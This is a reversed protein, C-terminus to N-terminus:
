DDQVTGGNKTFTGDVGKKGTKATNGSITGGDMTFTGGLSSVYVGGGYGNNGDATNESITGAKMTFTGYNDVYVGGGYNSKNKSITGGNMTFTGKDNIFVGGGSSYGGHATNGSITGGNMTLTANGNVYVGGGLGYDSNNSATNGSVTGGNMTFTGNENIYVGGGYGTSSNGKIEGSHLEVTSNSDIYVLSADNDAKGQLVPGDIVFAQKEATRILSGKDSLSITNTGTLRIEKYDGSISSGDSIGTMSLDETIQIGFVKPSGEIGGDTNSIAEIATTWGSTSTVTVPEYVTVACAAKFGGDKTTVTIVASGEAVGSVKGTQDVLAINDNDSEWTVSKDLAGNPTVTAALTESAGKEIALSGQLSVGTVPGDTGPGADGCSAAAVVVACLGALVSKKM